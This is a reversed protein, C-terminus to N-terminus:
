PRQAPGAAPYMGDPEAAHSERPRVVLGGDLVRLADPQDSTRDPEADVVEVRRVGVARVGVLSEHPGRDGSEALLDHARGFGTQHHLARRRSLAVVAVATRFVDARGALARQRPELDVDDIEVVQMADIGRSGDLLRPSFHGSEDGFALHAPKPDRL